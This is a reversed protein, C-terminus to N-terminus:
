MSESSHWTLLKGEANGESTAYGLEKEIDSTFEYLSTQM